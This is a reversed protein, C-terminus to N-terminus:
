AVRRAGGRGDLNDRYWRVTKEIGERLAVGPAYGLARLKSVDPCRRVTGGAKIAGPVVFIERGYSRAVERAVQAIETEVETGLHYVTRHTGKELMRVIGDVADDVYVFARTETGTGEVPFNIPGRTRAALEHLRLVFQPIVHETGMDPGYVNHPRFVLVREVHKTAWHLAILESILKAGGYSYRPNLVDPISLGTSEDTPIKEPSQYVESSSAVLLSHVCNHKACADVVNIMGRVGVDLVLEPQRYFHETGNVSALHLVHGVGEVARQVAPADRIDGEIMEVDDSVDALRSAMGRWNNDLVRVRRGDKVLRRVLASGLFGTGGTVLIPAVSNSL